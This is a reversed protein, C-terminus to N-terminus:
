QEEEDEQHQKGTLLTTRNRNWRTEMMTMNSPFFYVIARVLKFAIKCAKVQVTYMGVHSRVALSDELHRRQQTGNWMTTKTDFYTSCSEM